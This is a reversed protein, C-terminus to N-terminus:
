NYLISVDVSGVFYKRKKKQQGVVPLLNYHTNDSRHQDFYKALFDIPNEPKEKLIVSSIEECVAKIGPNQLLGEAAEKPNKFSKLSIFFKDIAIIKSKRFLKDINIYNGPGPTDTLKIWDSRNSTGTPMSGGKIRTILKSDYAGPGPTDSYVKKEIRSGIVHSSQKSLFSNSINYTGPGPTSSVAFTEQSSFREGIRMPRLYSPVTPKLTLSSVVASNRRRKSNLLSKDEKDDNVTEKLDDASKRAKIEKLSAM